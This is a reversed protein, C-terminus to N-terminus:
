AAAGDNPCSPLALEPTETQPPRGPTCLSMRDGAGRGVRSRPTAIPLKSRRSRNSQGSIQRTEKGILTTALQIGNAWYTGTGGSPLVDFTAGGGYAELEASTVTAGDVPDGPRLDGLRRGDPLRHGPSVDVSRADSLVLHVVQHTAPVPTSAIILVRGAVRRGAGDTTWVTIGPRLDDVRREGDPTAIRTGKALCIPCPPSGSPDRAVVAITGAADITGIVHFGADLSSGTSAIYDFGFRGDAATLIISRLVKWDRYIALVQDPTPNASSDIELHAVIAAYTPADARIAALHQGALLAEDSRAIPYFDPDCFLPRGLEDVLRYRLEARDLPPVSAVATPKPNPGPTSVTTAGPGSSATGGGAAIGTDSPSPEIVPAPTTEPEIPASPGSSAAVASETVKTGGPTSAPSLGSGVCAALLTLPLGALLVRRMGTMMRGVSSM